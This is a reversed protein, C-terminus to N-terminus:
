LRPKHPLVLMNNAILTSCPGDVDGQWARHVEPDGGESFCSCCARRALSQTFTTEQWKCSTRPQGCRRGPETSELTRGKRLFLDHDNPSRGPRLALQPGEPGAKALGARVPPLPLKFPLPATAGRRGKLALFSDDSFHSEGFKTVRTLSPSSVRSQLVNAHFSAKLGANQADLGGARCFYPCQLWLLSAFGLKLRIQRFFPRSVRLKLM